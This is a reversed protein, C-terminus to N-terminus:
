KIILNQFDELFNIYLKYLDVRTIIKQMELTKINAYMDYVKNKFKEIYNVRKLETEVIYWMYNLIFQKEDDTATREAYKESDYDIGCNQKVFREYPTLREVMDLYYTYMKIQDNQKVITKERSESSLDGCYLEVLENYEKKQTLNNKKLSDTMLGIRSVLDRNVNKKEITSSNMLYWGDIKFSNGGNEKIENIRALRENKELKKVFKKNQYEADGNDGESFKNDIRLYYSIKEAGNVKGEEIFEFKLMHMYKEYAEKREAIEIKEREFKHRHGRYLGIVQSVSKYAKSTTFNIILFVILWGLAFAPLYIKVIQDTLEYKLMSSELCYLVGYAGAVFFIGFLIPALILLMRIVNYKSRMIDYIDCLEAGSYKEGKYTKYESNKFNTEAENYDNYLSVANKNVYKIYADIIDDLQSITPVVGDKGMIDCAKRKLEIVDFLPIDKNYSDKIVQRIATNQVNEGSKALDNYIRIFMCVDKMTQLNEVSDFRYM